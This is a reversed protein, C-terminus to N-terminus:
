IMGASHHERKALLYAAHAAEASDFLGLHKQAGGPLGIRARFRGSAKHFGVGLLGARMNDARARRQNQLNESNSIERLNTLRNDARDGNIHDIFKAPWRGHAILWALRHAAISIGLFRVDRYGQGNIAGATDGPKLRRARPKIWILSGTQACYSFHERAVEATIQKLRDANSQRAM